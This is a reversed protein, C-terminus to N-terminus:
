FNLLDVAEEKKQDMVKAYIQTTALERHGLLKSVTYIDVNKSLLSVAFTHRACHFTINKTIGASLVWRKLELLVWSGYKFGSFVKENNNGRTGLYEEAKANITLYEQGKTKKQRFIIRTRDGEKFVDGWTLKEIDSKRLGTLCSFLFANKLYPFNCPTEALKEVEDMTLYMRETEEQKFGQVGRLPNVPIIREEFAQNICARLKNFYSVKSNQSLGQFLESNKNKTRKYTNKEVTNLYEKFGEIWDADIDKFTTKEDCYVELYKLCSHWNGWNGNSDPNQHREECMKRYYQLFPIDQKFQKTFGYEGNQIEIQRKSRIAQATLLTQENQKRDQATREKILYLKLFEYERKGNRYIDLYLSINGNALVKERLKVPEKKTKSIKSTKM